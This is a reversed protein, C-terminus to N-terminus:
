KPLRGFWKVLTRHFKHIGQVPDTFMFICKKSILDVQNEEAIKLTDKTESMQHVWVHTIGKKIADRLVADTQQKPTVILLRDVGAPLDSVSRYCTVGAIEITQPNVPYVEYGKKKLDRYILSGFKKPDRSVGAIALKKPELFKEIDKKSIM